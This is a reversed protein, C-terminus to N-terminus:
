QSIYLHNYQYTMCVPLILAGKCRTVEDSNSSFAASRTAAVKKKWGL